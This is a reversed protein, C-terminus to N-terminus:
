ANRAASLRSCQGRGRGAIAPRIVHGSTIPSQAATPEKLLLASKDGLTCTSFDSESALLSSFHEVQKDDGTPSYNKATDCSDTDDQIDIVMAM